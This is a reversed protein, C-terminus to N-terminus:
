SPWGQIANQGPQRPWEPWTKSILASQKFVLNKQSNTLITLFTIAHCPTVYWASDQCFTISDVTLAQLIRYSITIQTPLQTGTRFLGMLFFWDKKNKLVIPTTPISAVKSSISFMKNFSWHPETYAKRTFSPPSVIKWGSSRGLVSTLFDGCSGELGINLICITRM